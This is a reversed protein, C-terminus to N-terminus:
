HTLPNRHGRHSLARVLALLAVAGAVAIIWTRLEFFTGLGEFGLLEAIFGGILAGVIGVAMTAILGISDDGPLLARAIWGALLGLVIWAIIGMPSELQRPNVLVM